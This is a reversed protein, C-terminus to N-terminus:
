KTGWDLGFVEEGFENEFTLEKLPANFEMSIEDTLWAVVDDLDPDEIDWEKMSAVAKEVDFTVLKTVVLKKPLKIEADLTPSTTMDESKLSM